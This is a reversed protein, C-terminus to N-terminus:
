MERIEELSEYIVSSFLIQVWEPQERVLAEWTNRPRTREAQSVEITAAMDCYNKNNSLTNVTTPYCESTPITTLNDTTLQLHTRVKKYQRWMNNNEDKM